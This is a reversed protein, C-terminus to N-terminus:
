VKGLRDYDYKGKINQHFFKGKSPADMFQDYLTPPVEYYVYMWGTNFVIYMNGGDAEPNEEPVWTARDVNSSGRVNDWYLKEEAM